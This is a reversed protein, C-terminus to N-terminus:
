NTLTITVNYLVAITRMRDLFWAAKDHIVFVGIIVCQFSAMLCMLMTSTYPAAYKESVRAQYFLFIFM